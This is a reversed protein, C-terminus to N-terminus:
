PGNRQLSTGQSLRGDGQTKQIEGPVKNKLDVRYQVKSLYRGADLIRDRRQKEWLLREVFRSKEKQDNEIFFLHVERAGKWLTEFYYAALKDRDLYTPLGLGQRM